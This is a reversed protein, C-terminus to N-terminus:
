QCPLLAVVLVDFCLQRLENGLFALLSSCSSQLLLTRCFLGGSFGARGLRAVFKGLPRLAASALLLFSRMAVLIRKEVLDSSFVPSALRHIGQLRVWTRRSLAM